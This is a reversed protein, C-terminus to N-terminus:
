QHAEVREVFQRIEGDLHAAVEEWRNPDGGAKQVEAQANGVPGHGGKHKALAFRWRDEDSKGPSRGYFEFNDQMERILYSVNTAPDELKAVYVDFEAPTLPKAKWDRGPNDLEVARRVQVQAPGLSVTWDQRWKKYSEEIGEVPSLDQQEVAVVGDVIWQPVSGSDAGAAAPAAGMTTALGQIQAQLPDQGNQRAAADLLPTTSDSEAPGTANASNSGYDPLEQTPASSTQDATQTSPQWTQGV